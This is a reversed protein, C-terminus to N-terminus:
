LHHTEWKSDGIYRTKASDILWRGNKRLLVFMYEYDPLVGGRAVLEARNKKPTEVSTISEEDIGQYQGNRAWGSPFGGYARKRETCFKSFISYYHKVYDEYSDDPIIDRDRQHNIRQGSERRSVLYMKHGWDNMEEVFSLVVQKIERM